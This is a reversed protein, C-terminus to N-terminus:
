YHLVKKVYSFRRNSIPIKKSTLNMECYQGGADRVIKKLFAINILFSHHIRLFNSNKFLKEYSGLNKCITLKTGTALFVMTYRGSSELYVIDRVAVVTIVGKANIAVYEPGSSLNSNKITTTNQAPNSM